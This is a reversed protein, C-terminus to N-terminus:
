RWCVEPKEGIIEELYNNVENEGGIEDILGLTKAREGLVTSGDALRKVEELPLNRNRSVTEIFNAHVINIDRLFLAREESTLPKDPSWSDKYKGASLQEYFYGEKQNKAVNNLHSSTVGISGVDSNKSAFIKDASSIAWYAASTGYERIHAIVPKDSNEIATSIEEGAVPSGGGSDVEVLIAKIKPDKNALRIAWTINESAVSDANFSPDSESHNPIYTFLEGHLNIGAVSCKDNTDDWSDNADATALDQTESSSYWGTASSYAVNGIVTSIAIIFVWKFYPTFVGWLAHAMEVQKQEVPTPGEMKTNLTATLIRDIFKM